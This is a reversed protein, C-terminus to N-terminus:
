FRRRTTTLDSEAETTLHGQCVLYLLSFLTLSNIIIGRLVLWLQYDWLFLSLNWTGETVSLGPTWRM